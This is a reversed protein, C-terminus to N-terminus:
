QADGGNPTELTSLDGEDLGLERAKLLRRMIKGSRTHPLDAVVEIERPAIAPGLRRRAHALLDRRLDDDDTRDPALTVFAKVVQGMTEHPIGIVGAESVADHEILASEVEFPGILHGASKIVDDGRGVFWFYGDADRRALDGSRYWNGVFSSRYRDPMDLYDRFMSPWGSRIALEGSQEPDTVEVPSGEDDLVIEGEPDRALITAEIGPLPRGMSGPKVPEARYNAIMMGGTETQWWNDLVPVGFAEQAWRVVDPNLPEGVSAVLRLSSLDHDAVADLGARMMMRLATPATYWVTVDQDEIVGYWRSVDFDGEDVVTTVGRSLPAVIGYSTGTVWGPDATCWYVDDPELDLVYGGTYHHHVVAEHVHVVGKPTGTTGSTFHLLATTDAPTAPILWGEPAAAMAPDLHLVRPDDSEVGGDGTVLVHRLSRLDSLLPAVKRNFLRPTTVLVEIRGLDMRQRIPEPGFVSFLPTYVGGAKLTGLAAIYLEPIRGTLTALRVGPGHGLQDLVKAFRDTQDALEAYTLDIPHDRRPLWRIAVRDGHGALVHRDITEHAINVGRGNPLGDLRRWETSWDFAACDQEYDTPRQTLSPGTMDESKVRRVAM